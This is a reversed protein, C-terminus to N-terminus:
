AMKKGCASCGAKAKHVRSIMPTHFDSGGGGMKSRPPASFNPVNNNNFLHAYQGIQGKNSFNMVFRSNHAPM